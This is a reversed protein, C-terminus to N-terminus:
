KTMAQRLAKEWGRLLEERKRDEMAPVFEQEISRLQVLEDSNKWIGAKLGALFAAGLSTSEVITPRVVTKNLIDAQFQMLFNNEVAGGDVALERATIGTEDEMVSLVDHTQYAM